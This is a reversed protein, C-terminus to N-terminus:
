LQKDNEGRINKYGGTKTKIERWFLSLCCMSIDHDDPAARVVDGLFETSFSSRKLVWVEKYHMIVRKEERPDHQWKKKCIM